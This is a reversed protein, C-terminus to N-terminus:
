SELLNMLFTCDEIALDSKWIRMFLGNPTKQQKTPKPPSTDKKVRYFSSMSVNFKKIAATMSMGNIIAAQAARVRSEIEANM